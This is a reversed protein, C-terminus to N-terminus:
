SAAAQPRAAVTAPKPASAGVPLPRQAPTPRSKPGQDACRPRPTPIVPSGPIGAQRGRPRGDHDPRGVAFSRHYRPPRRTPTPEPPGGPTDGRKARVHRNEVGPQGVAVADVHAPVHAGHVRRDLPQDQRRILVVLGQEGGHRDARERMNVLGGRAAAPDTGIGDDAVTLTLQGANVHVSVTVRNAQAHRVANSLAEQLVALLDPRVADPVASDIPDSMELAPRFGLSGAAADVADRIETRLAASM